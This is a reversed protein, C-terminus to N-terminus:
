KFLLKLRLTTKRNWLNIARSIIKLCLPKSKSNQCAKKMNYNQLYVNFSDTLQFNRKTEM